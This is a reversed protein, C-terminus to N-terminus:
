FSFLHIAFSMFAALMEREGGRVVMAPRKREGEEDGERRKKWNM